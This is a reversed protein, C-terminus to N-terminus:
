KRGIPKATEVSTRQIIPCSGYQSLICGSPDPCVTVKNKMCTDIRNPKPMSRIQRAHLETDPAAHSPDESM